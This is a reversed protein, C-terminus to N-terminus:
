AATFGGDVTYVAGTVYSAEDSALFLVLNAVEENGGYRGMPILGYMQENFEEGQGPALQDSISQFMRNDIPGPAVANVRINEGALELAATKVLGCVAHKSAIYHALQPFGVLGAISATAVVSGGSKKLPEIAHKISLWVGVVNTGLVDHFEEVSLEGLPKVDGETGANAFLIDLGGFREVTAETAAKNALEDTADAISMALRDPEGIRELLAELKSQSRGVAM